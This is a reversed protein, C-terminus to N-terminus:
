IQRADQLTFMLQLYHFPLQLVFKLSCSKCSQVQQPSPATSPSSSSTHATRSDVYIEEFALGVPQEQQDALQHQQHPPSSSSFPLQQTHWLSAAAPYAAQLGQLLNSPQQSTYVSTLRKCGCTLGALPTHMILPDHQHISARCTPEPM